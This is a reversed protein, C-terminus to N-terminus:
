RVSSIHMWISLSACFSKVQRIDDSSYILYLFFQHIETLVDPRFAGIFGRDSKLSANVFIAGDEGHTQLLVVQVSEKRATDSIADTTKKMWCMMTATSRNRTSSMFNMLTLYRQVRSILPMISRHSGNLPKKVLSSLLSM